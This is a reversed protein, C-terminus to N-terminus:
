SNLLSWFKEGESKPIPRKYHKRFMRQSHGAKHITLAENQFKALHYSCYTHRMVNFPWKQRDETDPVKVWSRKGNTWKEKWTSVHYGLKLRLNNWRREFNPKWKWDLKDLWPAVGEELEVYRLLSTKNSHVRISNTQVDLATKPTVPAECDARLGVFM